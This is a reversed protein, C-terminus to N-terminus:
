HRRKKERRECTQTSSPEDDTMQRMQGAPPATVGAKFSSALVAGTLQDWVLVTLAKVM